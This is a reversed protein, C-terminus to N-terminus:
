DHAKRRAVLIVAAGIILLGGVVYFITTGMGGTSPLEAGKNNLIQDFNDTVYTTATDEELTLTKPTDLLNYEAHTETETLVYEKDNDLGRIIILGNEDTVVENSEGGPIYYDGSKTVNFAEGDVTVTFKVNDLKISTDAGDVKEIGGYYTTYETKDTLVYNGGDYSLTVENERATDTLAAETVKARYTIVIDNGRNAQVVTDALKIQWAAEANYGEDGSALETYDVEPTLTSSPYLRQLM